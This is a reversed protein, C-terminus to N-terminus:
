TPGFPVSNVIILGIIGGIMAGICESIKKENM